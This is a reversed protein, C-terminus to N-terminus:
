LFGIAQSKSQVIFIKFFLAAQCQALVRLGKPVHQQEGWEDSALAEVNALSLALLDSKQYNFSVNL